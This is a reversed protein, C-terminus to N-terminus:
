NANKIYIIKKSTIGASNIKRKPMNTELICWCYDLNCQTSTITPSFSEIFNTDYINYTTGSNYLKNGCIGSIVGNSQISLWDIGVDCEWGKFTHLKYSLLDKYNFRHEVQTQDIAITYYNNSVPSLTFGTHKNSKRVTESRLLKEQDDTYRQSENHIIERRNITWNYKSNTLAIAIQECTDWALPDMFVNAEVYVDKEYLFDAVNNIHTSDAYERHVSIYVNDLNTYMEDWWKIDKSANTTLEIIADYQEKFFKIVDKFQKWHTVEGGLFHIAIKKKNTHQLYYDILYSVNKVLTTYDPWKITGSNYGPFCYWCKYNCINSIELHIWFLEADWGPQKIEVINM